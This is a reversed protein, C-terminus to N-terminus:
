KRPSSYPSPHVEVKVVEDLGEEMTVVVQFQERSAEDGETSENGSAEDRRSAAGCAQCGRHGKPSNGPNLTGTSVRVHLGRNQRRPTTKPTSNQKTPSSTPTSLALENDDKRENQRRRTPLNASKKTPSPTARNRKKQPSMSPRRVVTEVPGDGIQELELIQRLETVTTASASDLISNNAGMDEAKTTRFSPPSPTSSQQQPQKPKLKDKSSQGTRKVPSGNAIATDRTNQCDCENEDYHCKALSHVKWGRSEFVRERQERETAGADNNPTDGSLVLKWWRWKRNASGASVTHGPQHASDSPPTKFPSHRRNPSLYTPPKKSIM